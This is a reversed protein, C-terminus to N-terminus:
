LDVVHLECVIFDYVCIKGYFYLVHGLGVFKDTSMNQPSYTPFHSSTMNAMKPTCDTVMM